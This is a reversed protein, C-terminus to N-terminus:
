LTTISQALQVSVTYVSTIEMNYFLPVLTHACFASGIVYSLASWFYQFNFLYIEAPTSLIGIGSFLSVTLSMGVTFFNMQKNGLLYEKTTKQRGGSMAAYVGIAASAVLLLAFLIYDAAALSLSESAM